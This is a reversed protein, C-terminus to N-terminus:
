EEDPDIAPAIMYVCNPYEVILPINKGGRYTRPNGLNELTKLAYWYPYSCKMKETDIDANNITTYSVGSLSLIKFLDEVNSAKVITCPENKYVTVGNKSWDELPLVFDKYDDVELDKKYREWALNCVECKCEKDCCRDDDSATCHDGDYSRSIAYSRYIPPILM